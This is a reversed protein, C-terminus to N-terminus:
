LSIFGEFTFGVETVGSGTKEYLVKKISDLDSSILENNFVKVHM